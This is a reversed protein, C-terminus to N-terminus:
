ESTKTINQYWPIVPFGSLTYLSTVPWPAYAYRTAIPVPAATHDYTNPIPAIITLGLGDSDLKPAHADVEVVTGDNFVVEFAACFATANYSAPCAQGPQMVVIDGPFISTPDFRVHVGISNPPPNSILTSSGYMPGRYPVNINYLRNLAVAALRAGVPQKLRPHIDTWPPNDSDGLDMATVFYVNPISTGNVQGQRMDPLINKYVGSKATYAALQVFIWPLDNNQFANRWSEITIPFQCGYYQGGMGPGIADINSEAQYFIVGKFALPGWTFPEIMKHWVDSNFDTPHAPNPGQPCQLLYDEKTHEQIITGGYNASILGLPISKNLKNYLDRGFFWGIATFYTWNGGGVSSPSAVTWPQMVQDFQIHVSANRSVQGVTFLRVTPYNTGVAAIEESANFAQIVTFVANSQGGIIYVDGFLIDDLTLVTSGSTASITYPNTADTTIPTPPLIVTWIGTGNITTNYTNQNFSVSVSNGIPGVGWIPVPVDHQLVMHSGLANSFAFSFANTSEFMQIHQIFLILSLLLAQRM